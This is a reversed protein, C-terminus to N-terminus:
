KKPPLKAFEADISALVPEALVAPSYPKIAESIEVLTMGSARDQMDPNRVLDPIIKELIAKAAPDALLVGMQTTKTSYIGVPAATAATTAPVHAAHAAPIMAALGMCAYLLFYRM